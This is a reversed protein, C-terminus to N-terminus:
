TDNRAALAFTTLRHVLDIGNPENYLAAKLVNKHDSEVVLLREIEDAAKNAVRCKCHAHEPTFPEFDCGTARLQEVINM